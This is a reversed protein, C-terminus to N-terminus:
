VDFTSILTKAHSCPLILIDDAFKFGSFPPVGDGIDFGLSIGGGMKKLEVSGLLYIHQEDVCADQDFAQTAKLFFPQEKGTWHRRWTSSFIHKLLKKKMCKKPRMVFLPSVYRHPQKTGCPMRLSTPWRRVSRGEVLSPWLFPPPIDCSFM